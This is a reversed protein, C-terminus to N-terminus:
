LTQIGFKALMQGLKCVPLGVVNCYDGRIGEVLLAGRGQIGYAGAKDMSEGTALYGRIEAATLPRFTVDTCAHNQLCNGKSMVALGTYVQHTHGSLASLMECAQQEDGPKGLVKGELVVVTDAAVVVCDEEVQAAVEAAKAYALAEVLEAPTLTQDMIEEGRAPIIDFDTLGMQGLLERRRPSQSALVLRGM